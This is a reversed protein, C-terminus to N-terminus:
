VTEASEEKPTEAVQEDAVVEVPTAESEIKAVAEEGLEAVVEERPVANAEAEAAESETIVENATAVKEVPTDGATAVNKTDEMNKDTNINKFSKYFKRLFDVQQPKIQVRVDEILKDTLVTVPADGRIKAIKWVEEILAFEIPYPHSYNINIVEGKKYDRDLKCQLQRVVEVVNVRETEVFAASLIESNVQNVLISILEDASLVIEKNDGKVVFKVLKKEVAEPSYKVEIEYTDQILKIGKNDTSM